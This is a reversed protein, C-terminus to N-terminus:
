MKILHSLAAKHYLAKWKYVKKKQALELVNKKLPEEYLCM